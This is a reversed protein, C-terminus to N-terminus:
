FEAWSYFAIGTLFLLFVQAPEGDAEPRDNSSMLQTVEELQSQTLSLQEKTEALQREKTALTESTTQFLSKIIKAM